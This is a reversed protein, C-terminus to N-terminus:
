KPARVSSVRRAHRTNLLGPAIANVDVNFERTEEALTEMFRVVAAKSAAYASLMPLPSTAGGGSLQIIKGRGAKRFVPLVARSLLVAGLLNVEITRVWAGLRGVDSPGGPGAIGANNVLVDLRGM